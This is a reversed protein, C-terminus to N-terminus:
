AKQTPVPKNIKQKKRPMRNAPKQPRHAKTTFLAKISKLPYSKLHEKRERHTPTKQEGDPKTVPSGVINNIEETFEEHTKRASHFGGKKLAVNLIEGNELIKEVQEPLPPDPINDNATIKLDERLCVHVTKEETNYLSVIGNPHQISFSHENIPYVIAGFAGSLSGFLWEEAYNNTLFLTPPTTAPRVNSERDTLPRLNEYHESSLRPNLRQGLEETYLYAKKRAHKPLDKNKEEQSREPILKKLGKEVVDESVKNLLLGLGATLGGSVVAAGTAAIAAGSMLFGTGGVLAAAALPIGAKIYWNKRTPAQLINFIKKQLSIFPKEIPTLASEGNWLRYARKQFDDAVFKEAEQLSDFTGINQRMSFFGDFTKDDSVSVFSDKAEEQSRATSLYLAVDWTGNETEFLGYGLSSNSMKVVRKNPPPATGNEQQQIEEDARMNDSEVYLNLHHLRWTQLTNQHQIMEEHVWRIDRINERAAIVYVSKDESDTLRKEGNDQKEGELADHDYSFLLVKNGTQMDEALRYFGIPARILGDHRFDDTEYGEPPGIYRYINLHGPAIMEVIKDQFTMDNTPPPAPSNEAPQSSASAQKSPKAGIEPKTSEAM